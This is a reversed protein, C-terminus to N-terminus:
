VNCYSSKLTKSLQLKHAWSRLFSPTWTPFFSVIVLVITYCLFWFLNSMKPSPLFCTNFGPIRTFYFYKHFAPYCFPIHSTFPYTLIKKKLQEPDYLFYYVVTYFAPSSPIRVLAKLTMPSASKLNCYVNDLAWAQSQTERLLHVNSECVLFM